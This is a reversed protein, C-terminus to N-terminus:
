PKEKAKESPPIPLYQPHKPENVEVVIKAKLKGEAEMQRIDSWIRWMVYSFYAISAFLFLLIISRIIKGLM